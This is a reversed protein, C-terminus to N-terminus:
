ILIYYCYFEINIYGKLKVPGGCLNVNISGDKLYKKRFKFLINFNHKFKYYLYLLQYFKIKLYKKNLRKLM